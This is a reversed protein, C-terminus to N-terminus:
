AKYYLPSIYCVRKACLYNKAGITSCAEDRAQTQKVAIPVSDFFRLGANPVVHQELTKCLICRCKVFGELRYWDISPDVRVNMM